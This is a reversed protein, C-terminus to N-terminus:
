LNTKYVSWNGDKPLTNGLSSTDISQKMSTQTKGVDSIVSVAKDPSVSSFATSVLNETQLANFASSYNPVNSLGPVLSTGAGFAVDTISKGDLLGGLAGGAVSGLPGGILGGAVSGLGGLLGGGADGGAPSKGTLMSYLNQLMGVTLPGSGGGSSTPSSADSPGATDPKSGDQNGQNKTDGPAIGAGKFEFHGGHSGPYDNAVWGYKSGNARIWSNSSGHIDMAVGYMHKSGSAGGVAKNKAPSRKSSAVDSGRVKGGSATMMQSFANAAAQSFVIPRGQQDSAGQITYGPGTDWVGDTKVVGGSAYPLAYGGSKAERM